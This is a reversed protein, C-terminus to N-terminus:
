FRGQSGQQRAKQPLAQIVDWHEAIRGDAVRFLDYFATAHDGLTGESTVLVFNGEGLVHHIREYKMTIGQEAMAQLAEGLGSLGDAIRPNHQLYHDGDFYAALRDMKGGILIDEVFARVLTKIAATRQLDTPATPGDIMSRGSPNPDTPRHQLNGWHEAIEGNEFRFIDFGVKAGFFEYSSHAFVFDGDAFVRVPRARASGERLAQLTSGFGAPGADGPEISRLLASVKAKNSMTSEQTTSQAAATAALLAALVLGARAVNSIGTIMKIEEALM